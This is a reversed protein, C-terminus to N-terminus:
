EAGNRRMGRGKLIHLIAYCRQLFAWGTSAKIQALEQVAKTGAAARRELERVAERQVRSLPEDEADTVVDPVVIGEHGAAALAFALNWSNGPVLSKAPDREVISADVVVPGIERASVALTDLCPSAFARVDGGPARTWGHAFVAGGVEAARALREISPADATGQNVVVMSRRTPRSPMSERAIVRRYHDLRQEVVRQNGCMELMRAAAAQGTRAWQEPNLQAARGLASACAAADGPAFLLGDRGDRIMEAMGGAAAAVVVKGGCMAEVCTYPFNDMPSPIAVVDAAARLEEVREPSVRGHASIRKRVSPDMRSIANAGFKGTGAPDPMDEGVLDLTADLGAHTAREFGELLTDVGKRPELRGTFAIRLPGLSRPKTVVHGAEAELDGLPHPIVNIADAAIGWWKAAWGALAGTPSVLGDSWTVCDREMAALNVEMPPRLSARNLGAIWATPSHLMTVIPPLGGIQGTRRSNLAFWALAGTDPAEIVEIKYEAVIGPLAKALEVGLVSVPTLAAFAARSEPTAIAPHPASWDADHGSGRLFPLRVVTVGAQFERHERGDDSVTVVVVTHGSNALAHAWQRTYTGIGGGFFPPFERSILCINM